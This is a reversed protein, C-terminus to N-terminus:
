KYIEKRERQVDFARSCHTFQIAFTVQNLGSIRLTLFLGDTSQIIGCHHVCTMIREDLDM